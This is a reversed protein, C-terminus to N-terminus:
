DLNEEIITFEDEPTISFKLKIKTLKMVIANMEVTKEVHNQDISVPYTFNLPLFGFKLTEHILYEADGIKDIKTIVPHVLVLKTMDTLYDYVLKPSKDIKFKLIM